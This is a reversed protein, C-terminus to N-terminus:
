KANDLLKQSFSAQKVRNSKGTSKESQLYYDSIVGKTFDEVNHVYATTKPNNQNVKEIALIDNAKIDYIVLSTLLARWGRRPVHCM